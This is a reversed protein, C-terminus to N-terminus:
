KSGTAVPFGDTPRDVGTRRARPVSARADSEWSARERAKDAALAVRARIATGGGPHSDIELVGGLASVRDQLGRLGSGAPNAGGVGDDRVEIALWGGQGARQGRRPRQARAQRPQHVGRCRRLLRHDSLVSGARAVRAHERRHVSQELGLGTGSRQRTGISDAGHVRDPRTLAGCARGAIRTLAPAKRAPAAIRQGSAQAIRITTPVSPDSVAASATRWARSSARAM